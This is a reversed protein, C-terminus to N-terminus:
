EGGGEIAEPLGYKKQLLEFVFHITWRRVILADVEIIANIM